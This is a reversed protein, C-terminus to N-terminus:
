GQKLSKQKVGESIKILTIDMRYNWRHNIVKIRSPLPRSWGPFIKYYMYSAESVIREKSSYKSLYLEDGASYHYEAKDAKEKLTVLFSKGEEVKIQFTQDVDPQLFIHLIDGIVGEAVPRIPMPEPKKLVEARGDAFALDFIKGGMEGFAMARFESRGDAKLYGIFDYEKENITLIIHQNLTFQEPYVSHPLEGEFPVTKQRDQSKKEVTFYACGSSFLISFALIFSTISRKPM